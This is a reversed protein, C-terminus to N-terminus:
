LAILGLSIMSLTLGFVRAPSMKEKEIMRAMVVIVVPYFSSAVAVLGFPGIRVALLYTLNALIDGGALLALPRAERPLVPPVKRVALLIGLVTLGGIRVTVLPWVGSEPSTQAIGILFLSFTLGSVVGYIAKGPRQGPNRQHVTLWLAPLALAVGVWSVLSYREGTLMGFFLPVVALTVASVPAVVAMQGKAMGQFYLALGAVGAVGSVAGWVLDTITASDGIILHHMVSILIAIGLGVVNAWLTVVLVPARRTALGGAFDCLGYLLSTLGALFFAMASHLLSLPPFCCAYFIVM